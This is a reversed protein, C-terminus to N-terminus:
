ERENGSSASEARVIQQTSSMSTVAGASASNPGVPRNDEWLQESADAAVIIPTADFERSQEALQGRPWVFAVTVSGPPPLPYVWYGFDWGRGDGGGGRQMLSIKPPADVPSRRPGLNTAKRGDAFVIGFRFQEESSSGLPDLHMLGRPDFGAAGPRVRLALRLAFGTSYAVVDVMALALEETVALVLRIPVSVGFENEPSSLWPPQRGPERRELPSPIPEFFSLPQSRKWGPLSSSSRTVCTTPEESAAFCGHANSRSGSCRRTAPCPFQRGSM